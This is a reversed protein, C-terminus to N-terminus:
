PTSVANVESQSGNRTWGVIPGVNGNLQFGGAVHGVDLQTVTPVTASTDQTQAVGDFAAKIDNTAVSWAVKSDSGPSYAAPSIQWQTAGGAGGQIAHDTATSINHMEYNNFTGDSLAASIGSSSVGVERRFGAMLTKLNAIDGGTYTLVDANRTVAASTTEIFSTSMSGAEVQARDAYLYEGGGVYSLTGDSKLVSVTAYGVTTAADVKGALTVRYGGGTIPSITSATYTGTGYTGTAYIVGTSMDVDAYCGSTWGGIVWDVRARTATGPWLDFSVAYTTNASIPVSTVVPDYYYTAHRANDANNAIKAAKTTGDISPGSNLTVVVNTNVADSSEEMWGATVGASGKQDFRSRRQLNTAATEPKYGLMTTLPNGNIDTAFCKVGDVMSGHYYPASEVDSSVHERAIQTVQATVDEAQPHWVLVDCTAGGMGSGGGPYAGIDFATNGGLLPASLQQWETTATISQNNAPAGFYITQPAGTNSKIYIWRLNAATSSLVQRVVSYDAGTASAGSNAQVRFATTGGNPDTQGATVVPVTGTGGNIKTWVANTLDDTFRLHNRIRRAGPFDIEGALGVVEYGDNNKWRKATARTFSFTTGAAARQPIATYELESRFDANEIMDAIRERFTMGGVGRRNGIGIYGRQKWLAPSRERLRM